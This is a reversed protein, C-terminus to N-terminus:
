GAVAGGGEGRGGVGGEGACVAAIVGGGWRGWHGTGGGGGRLSPQVPRQETACASMKLWMGATTIPLTIM